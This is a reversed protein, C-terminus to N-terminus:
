FPPWGTVSMRFIALGCQRPQSPTPLRQMTGAVENQSYASVLGSLVGVQNANFSSLGSSAKAPKYVRQRPSRPGFLSGTSTSCSSNPNRVVSAFARDDRRDMRFRHRDDQRRRLLDLQPELAFCDRRQFQLAWQLILRQLDHRPAFLFVRRV